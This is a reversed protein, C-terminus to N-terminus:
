GNAVDEPSRGLRVVQVQTDGRVTVEWTSSPGQNNLDGIREPRISTVTLSDRAVGDATVDVTAPYKTASVSIWTFETDRVQIRPSVWRMSYVGAGDRFVYVSDGIACYTNRTVTDRYFATAAFDPLDVFAGAGPWFAFGRRTTGDLYTALYVGDYWTAVITAPNYREAWQKATFLTETANAATGPGIVCLGSESAYMVASGNSVISERSAGPLNLKAPRQDMGGPDIGTVIYPVGTTVVVLSQDIVALGVIPFPVVLRYKEPWAYPRFAECFYLNNGEFAAMIGNPMNVLGQLGDPPADWEASDIEEGLNDTLVDDLLTGGTAGIEGVYLFAGAESRYVQRAAIPAGNDAVTVLGSLTVHQNTACEITTIPSPASKDGFENVLVYVYDRRVTGTTGTGGVPSAAPPTAPPPLALPRSTSPLNAGATGLAATTFKPVGDGTFITRESTDSAIQAKAVSVYSTWHFWYDDEDNLAQGFRYITKVGTKVLAKVLRPLALPRLDGHELWVNEAAQAYGSPLSAAERLGMVGKFQDFVAKM